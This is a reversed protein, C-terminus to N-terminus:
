GSGRRSPPEEGTRLVHFAARFNKRRWIVFMVLVGCVLVAPGAKKLPVVWFHTQAAMEQGASGHAASLTATYRSIWFGSGASMGIKRISGPLINRDPLTSTAVLSGFINRIELTGQPALHV